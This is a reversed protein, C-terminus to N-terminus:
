SFNCFNDTCDLRLVYMYWVFYLNFNTYIDILIDPKLLKPESYHSAIGSVNPELKIQSYIVVTIVIVSHDYTRISVAESKWAQNKTYEADM